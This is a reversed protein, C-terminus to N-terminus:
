ALPAFAGWKRNFYLLPEGSGVESALVEGLVITHDGADITQATRCDLWAMANRLLPAGSEGYAVELDAFRDVYEGHKESFRRGLDAQTTSLISVGFGEAQLLIQHTYASKAICVLILPPLLSVSSFSSATMGYSLGEHAVTIVTVGSAWQALTNRFQIPDIPM